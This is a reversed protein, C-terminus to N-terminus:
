ILKDVHASKSLPIKLIEAIVLPHFRAHLTPIHWTHTDEDVLRDVTAQQAATSCNEPPTLLEKVNPIWRDQWIRTHKGNGIRWVCGKDLWGIAEWIGRWAFSPNTGLWTDFLSSHPFYKAKFVRHLLSGENHFIKWGQKDSTCSEWGCAVNMHMGNVFWGCM